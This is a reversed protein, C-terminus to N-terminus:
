LSKLYPLRKKKQQQYYYYMYLVILFWLCGAFFYFSHHMSEVNHTFFVHIDALWQQHIEHVSFWFSGMSHRSIIKKCRGELEHAIDIKSQDRCTGLLWTEQKMAHEHYKYKTYIFFMFIYMNYAIYTMSCALLFSCIFYYVNM